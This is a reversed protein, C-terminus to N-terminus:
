SPSAASLNLVNGDQPLLKGEGSINKCIALIVSSLFSARRLNKWPFFLSNLFSDFEYNSKVVQV